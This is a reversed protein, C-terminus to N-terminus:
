PILAQGGALVMGMARLNERCPEDRLADGLAARASDPLTENVSGLLVASCWRAAGDRRNTLEASLDVLQADTLSLGAAPSHQEVNMVLQAATQWELSLVRSAVATLYLQRNDQDAQLTTVVKDAM